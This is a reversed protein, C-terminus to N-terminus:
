PGFLSGEVKNSSLDILDELLKDNNRKTEDAKGDISIIKTLEDQTPNWRSIYENTQCENVYIDYYERNELNVRSLCKGTVKDYAFFPAGMFCGEGCKNFNKRLIARCKEYCVEGERSLKARPPNKTYWYYAYGLVVILTLAGIIVINKKM